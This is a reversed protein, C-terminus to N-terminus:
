GHAGAYGDENGENASGADELWNLVMAVGRGTGSGSRSATPGPSSPATGLASRVGHGTTTLFAGFLQFCM